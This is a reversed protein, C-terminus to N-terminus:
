TVPLEFYRCWANPDIQGKVIECAGGSVYHTCIKCREDPNGKGYSAETKSVRVLVDGRLMQKEIQAFLHPADDRYPETNLDAPLNQWPGPETMKLYPKYIEQYAGEDWPYGLKTMIRKATRVEAETAVEHAGDYDYKGGAETVGHMLLIAEVVEHTTLAPILKAVNLQRKCYDATGRFRPDIYIRLTDTSSGGLWPVEYRRYLRRETQAARKYWDATEVRKLEADAHHQRLHGVSM